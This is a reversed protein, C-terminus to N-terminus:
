VDLLLVTLWVVSGGDLFTASCGVAASRVGAAAARRASSAIVGLVETVTSEARITAPRGAYVRTSRGRSRREVTRSTRIAMSAVLNTGNCTWTNPLPDAAANSVPKLLIENTVGGEDIKVNRRGAPALTVWSGNPRCLLPRCPRCTVVGPEPLAAGCASACKAGVTIPDPHVETTSSLPAASPLPAPMPPPINSWSVLLTPVEPARNNCVVNILATNRESPLAKTPATLGVRSSCMAALAGRQRSAVNDVGGGDTRCEDGVRREAQSWRAAVGDIATRVDPSVRLNPLCTATSVTSRATGRPAM